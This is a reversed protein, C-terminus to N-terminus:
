SAIAEDMNIIISLSPDFYHEVCNNGPGKRDVVLFDCVKNLGLVPHHWTNRAYNVGQDAGALFLTLSAPDPTNEAEGKKPLGVLVLYPEGSVPIFAQSGLPHREMMEITMPLTRPQARFLNMVGYDEPGSLEVPALSDYRLTNGQNIVLPEQDSIEIVQGFQAFAERTLPEPRLTLNLTSM